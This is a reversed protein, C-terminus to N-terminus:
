GECDSQAQDEPENNPTGNNPAIIVPEANDPEKESAERLQKEMDSALDTLHEMNDTRDQIEAPTLQSLRYYFEGSQAAIIDIATPVADAKEFGAIMLLKVLYEQTVDHWKARNTM